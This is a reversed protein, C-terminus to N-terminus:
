GHAHIDEIGIHLLYGIVLGLIHDAVKVVLKLVVFVVFHLGLDATDVVLVLYSFELIPLTDIPIVRGTLCRAFICDEICVFLLVLVVSVLIHLIVIVADDENTIAM